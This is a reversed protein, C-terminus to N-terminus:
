TAMALCPGRCGPHRRRGDPVQHRRRVRVRLARESRRRVPPAARHSLRFLVTISSQNLQVDGSGKHRAIEGFEELSVVQFHSEGDDGSYVRVINM